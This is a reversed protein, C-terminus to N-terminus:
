QGEGVPKGPALLNADDFSRSLWQRAVDVMVFSFNPRSSDDSVCIRAASPCRSARNADSVTLTMASCSDNFAGRTSEAALLGTATLCLGTLALSLTSIGRM